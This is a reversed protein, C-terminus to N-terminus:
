AEVFCKEKLLLEAAAFGQNDSTRQSSVQVETDQIIRDDSGGCSSNVSMTIADQAHLVKSSYAVEDLVNQCAPSQLLNNQM